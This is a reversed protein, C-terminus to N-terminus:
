QLRVRCFIPLHDSPYQDDLSVDLVEYSNAPIDASLFVYDVREGEEAPRWGFRTAEQESISVLSSRFSDKAWANISSVAPTEPTSGLDGLLLFTHEGALTHIAEKMRQAIKESEGAASDHIRTNFVFVTKGSDKHQLKVWNLFQTQQIDVEGERVAEGIPLSGEDLHTYILKSYLIPCLDTGMDLKGEGPVYYAYDSLADNLWDVQSLTAEQVGVVEPARSRILQAIMAKREDWPRPQDESFEHHINYSMVTTMARTDDSFSFSSVLLLLAVLAASARFKM